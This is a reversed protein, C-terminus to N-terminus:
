TDGGVKRKPNQMEMLLSGSGWYLPKDRGNAYLKGMTLVLQTQWDTGVPIDEVRPSSALLWQFEKPDLPQGGTKWLKYVKPLLNPPLYAFAETGDKARIAHLLGDNSRSNRQIERM